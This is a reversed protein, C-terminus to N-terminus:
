AAELLATTVDIMLARDIDTAGFREAIDARQHCARAIADLRRWRASLESRTARGHFDDPRPRAEEFVAARRRWYLATAAGWASLVHNPDIYESLPELAEEAFTSMYATTM